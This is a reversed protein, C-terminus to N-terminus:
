AAHTAQHITEFEIPTLKGLAHQQWSCIDMSRDHVDTIKELSFMGELM